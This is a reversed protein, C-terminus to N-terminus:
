TSLHHALSHYNRILEELDEYYYFKTRNLIEIALELQEIELLRKNRNFIRNEIHFKKLLQDILETKLSAMDAQHILTELRERKRYNDKHDNLIHNAWGSVSLDNSKAIRIFEDHQKETVRVTINKNKPAKNYM